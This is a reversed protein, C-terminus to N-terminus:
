LTIEPALRALVEPTLARIMAGALQVAADLDAMAAYGYHTHAYRVPVGLVITPVGEGALHISGGNTGGGTRVALQHPIGAKEAVQRAFAILGPHAVMSGDRFRLQVGKKLAGQAQEPPTFTDDAPTGELCIALRPRVRAATVKAGRLGVEEQASFAAVVDVSLSKEAKLNELVDVAGACGLRCDFAKGLALGTQENYSFRVEPAAPQGPELGLLGTADERSCVGADLLISDMTLAAGKEAASMFHPPKSTSVARIFQGRSNKVLFTHAPINHEVWGGLPVLKLLGNATISQVMFGVEDMHADLLVVPRGGTNGPLAAYVNQMCDRQPHFAATLECLVDAVDHEYGSPGFADSIRACNTLNAM